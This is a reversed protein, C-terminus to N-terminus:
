AAGKRNRMVAFEEATRDRKEHNCKPCAAVLNPMADDGMLAKPMQHEVHWDGDIALAANCYHCSGGSKEFVERRRRPIRKPGKAKSVSPPMVMAERMAADAIARRAQIESVVECVLQAVRHSGIAGMLARASRMAEAKTAGSGFIVGRTTDTVVYMVEHLGGGVMLLSSIVFGGSGFAGGILAKSMTVVKLARMASSAELVAAKLEAFSSQRTRRSASSSYLARM